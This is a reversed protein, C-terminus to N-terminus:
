RLKSMASGMANIFHTLKKTDGLVHNVTLKLHEDDLEISASNRKLGLMQGCFEPTMKAKAVQQNKAKVIFARDFDEHGAKIDQFGFLKIAGHFAGEPYIQFGVMLKEPYKLDITTKWRGPSSHICAKMPFGNYTGELVFENPDVSLSHHKAFATWNAALQKEWKELPFKKRADAFRKALRNTTMLLHKLEDHDRIHGGTEIYVTQDNLTITDYDESALMLDGMLNGTKNSPFDSLLLRKLVKQDYCRVGFRNDFNGHGLPTGKGKLIASLVGKPASIQLAFRLPKPFTSRCYTFYETHRDEGAGSTRMGVAVRTDIGNYNGLMELKKPNPMHFKIEGALQQWAARNLKNKRLTYFIVGGIILPFVFIFFGAFLVIFWEGAIFTNTLM